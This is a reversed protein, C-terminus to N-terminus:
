GRRGGLQERLKALASNGVEPTISAAVTEPLALPMSKLPEGNMFMRCAIAYNRGFLKRSDPTRLTNLNYFGTETAAHYVVEHAWKTIGAMCPHANRCAERYAAEEAPLGFAEPTRNECMARFEPASPPWKKLQPDQTVALAGLGIAIQQGTLGGLTAAWAHSQDATVGFSGTWRHGYMETMKLWLNDLLGQRLKEPPSPKSSATSPQAIARSAITSAQQM